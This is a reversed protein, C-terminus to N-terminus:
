GVLQTESREDVTNRLSVNFELELDDIVDTTAQYIMQAEASTLKDDDAVQDIYQRACQEPDAVTSLFDHVTKAPEIYSSVGMEELNDELLQEIGTADRVGLLGERVNNMEDTTTELAAAALMGHDYPDEILTEGYDAWDSLTVHIAEPQTELVAEIADIKDRRELTVHQEFQAITEIGARDPHTKYADGTETANDIRDSLHAVANTHAYHLAHTMEHDLVGELENSPEGDSPLDQILTYDIAICQSHRNFSGRGRTVDFLVHEYDPETDVFSYRDDIVSAREEAIEELRADYIEKTADSILKKKADYDLTQHSRGISVTKEDHNAIIKDDEGIEYTIGDPWIGYRQRFTWQGNYFFSGVEEDTLPEDSGIKEQLVSRTEHEM